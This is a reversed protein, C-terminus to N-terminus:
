LHVPVLFSEYLPNEPVPVILGINHGTRKNPTIKVAVIGVPRKDGTGQLKNSLNDVLKAEM